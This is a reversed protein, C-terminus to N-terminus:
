QMAGELSGMMYDKETDSKYGLVCYEMIEILDQFKLNLQGFEVKALIRPRTRDLSRNLTGQVYIRGLIGIAEM